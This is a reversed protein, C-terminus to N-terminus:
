KMLGNISYRSHELPLPCHYIMLPSLHPPFLCTCLYDSAPAHQSPSVSLLAHPLPSQSSFMHCSSRCVASKQTSYWQCGFPSTLWFINPPAPGQTHVAEAAARSLLIGTQLPWRPCWCHCTSFLAEMMPATFCSLLGFSMPLWSHTKDYPM